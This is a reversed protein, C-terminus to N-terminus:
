PGEQLWGILMELAANAKDQWNGATARERDGTVSGGARMGRLDAYEARDNCAVYRHLAQLADAKSRIAKPLPVLRSSPNALFPM